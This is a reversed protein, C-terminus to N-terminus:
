PSLPADEADTKRSDATTPQNRLEELIRLLRLQKARLEPSPSERSALIGEVLSVSSEIASDPVPQTENTNTTM